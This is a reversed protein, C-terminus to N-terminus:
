RGFRVNPVVIYLMIVHFIAAFAVVFVITFTVLERTRPKYKFLKKLVFGALLYAVFFAAALALIAIVAGRENGLLYAIGFLAAFFSVIFVLTFGILEKQGMSSKFIKRLVLLSTFYGGVTSFLFDM